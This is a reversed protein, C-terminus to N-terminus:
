KKAAAQQQLAHWVAAFWMMGARRQGIPSFHRKTGIKGRNEGTLLDTDPGPYYGPSHWLQDIAARIKAEPQPYNYVTPHLTSKAPLWPPDYGWEKALTDRIVKMNALYKETDVGEIVDSEGQQWLVFRFAPVLKGATIMRPLLNGGPLWQKSSTGGVAVNILGIPVDIVPLLYNAFAPWITGFEGVHPMPDNAIQWTNAVYDLMTIRGAPDEVKLLEDNAGGAYSQGSIMFVEGVGVLDVKASPQMGAPAAVSRVEISYWGGAPLTIKTEWRNEKFTGMVPKWAPVDASGAAGGRVRVEMGAPQPGTFEVHLPFEAQGLRPGEPEHVSAHVPDYGTRQFVQRTRPSIVKLTSAPDAGMGVQPALSLAGASLLSHQVFQRRTWSTQSM